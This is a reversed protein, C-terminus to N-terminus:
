AELQLLTLTVQITALGSGKNKVSAYITTAAPVDGNFGITAPSFLITQNNTTTIVEAIVGSGPLPDETELRSADATRAATSTYLRVWAPIEVNMALLAYTKFGTISINGVGNIALAGTTTSATTRSGLGTQSLLGGTDTLDSIDSPIINTTDTLDSIDIPVTESVIMWSNASPNKTLTVVKNPRLTHVLSGSVLVGNVLNVNYTNSSNRFTYTKGDAPDGIAITRNAGSPTFSIIDAHSSEDWQDWSKDDTLTITNVSTYTKGGFQLGGTGPELRIFKGINYENTLTINGQSNISLATYGGGSGSSNATIEFEDPTYKLHLGRYRQGDWTAPGVILPRSGTDIVIDNNDGSLNSSSIKNGTFTITGIDSAGPIGQIGQEGQPGAPGAPGTNGIAGIFGRPGQEGQPGTAGTLGIPGQIGQPGASGTLGIPGQIGQPGTAGAPGQAGDAGDAGAPGQPGQIPGVNDWASGNWVYGDGDALVVYLDGQTPTPIANLEVLDAVSGKLLVSTGAPGQIGQPGAPGQIGQPGAPGTPGQAGDEGDAGDAGAPGTSGLVSLGTGADKIDGGSPLLLDGDTEFIWQKQSPGVNTVVAVIRDSTLTVSETGTGSVISVGTDKAWNSYINLEDAVGEVEPTIARGVTITNLSTNGRFLVDDLTDEGSVADLSTLMFKENSVNWAIVQAGQPDGLEFPLGDITPNGARVGNEDVPGILGGAFTGRFEGSLVTANITGTINIDGTGVIDNGNLSLNGGLTPSSDDQVSLIGVGDGEIGGDYIEKLMSDVKRLSETNQERQIPRLLMFGEGNTLELEVGNLSASVKFENSNIIEKIYYVTNAVVGGFIFGNGESTFKILQGVRLDATEGELINTDTNTRFVATGLGLFLPQYSM